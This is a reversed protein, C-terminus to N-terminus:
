FTTTSNMIVASCSVLPSQALWALIAPQLNVEHDWALDDMRGHIEIWDEWGNGRALSPRAAPNDTAQLNVCGPFVRPFRVVGPCPPRPFVEFPSTIRQKWWKAPLCLHVTQDARNCPPILTACCRATCILLTGAAPGIILIWVTSRAQLSLQTQSQFAARAVVSPCAFSRGAFCWAIQSGDM